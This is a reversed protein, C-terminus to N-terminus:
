WCCCRKQYGTHDSEAFVKRWSNKSWGSRKPGRNGDISANKMNTGIHAAPGTLPTAIGIDLMKAPASKQAYAWGGVLMVVVIVATLILIALKKM